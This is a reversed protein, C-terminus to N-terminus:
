LHSRSACLCGLLDATLCCGYSDDDDSYVVASHAFPPGRCLHSVVQRCRHSVCETKLGGGGGACVCVCVGDEFWWGRGRVCVCMCVCVCVCVCVWVCVCVVRSLVRLSS